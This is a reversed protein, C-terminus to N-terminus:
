AARRRRWWGITLSLAGLLSWIIFTSPEPIVTGQQGQLRYDWDTDAPDGGGVYNSLANGAFYSDAGLDVIGGRGGIGTHSFQEDTFFYYTTNPSLTVSPAFQWQGGASGVSQALFGATLNSLGTPTGAYTSTLLFLDGSAEPQTPQGTDFDYFNFTINNWPGGGPTTVAIGPFSINSGISGVNQSIILGMADNAAFCTVSFIVFVVVLQTARTM